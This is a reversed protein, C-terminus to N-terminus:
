QSNRALYEKARDFLKPDERLYGIAVNCSGCLLGRIWGTQHDHDVVLRKGGGKVPPEGCIACVGGQKTALADYEDLSLGYLRMLNSSRDYRARLTPDLSQRWEWIRERAFERACELCWYQRGRTLSRALNFDEPPKEQRCRSCRM